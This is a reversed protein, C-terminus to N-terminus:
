QNRGEGVKGEKQFQRLKSGSAARFRDEDEEAAVLADWDGGDALKVGRPDVGSVGASAQHTQDSSGLLGGAMRGLSRARSTRPEVNFLSANAIAKGSSVLAVTFNQSGASVEISKLNKGEYKYTAQQSGYRYTAVGADSSTVRDRSSTVTPLLLAPAVLMEDGGKHGDFSVDGSGTRVWLKGDTAIFGIGSAGAPTWDLRAQGDISVLTATAIQQGGSSITWKSETPANFLAAAFAGGAALLVALISTVIWRM